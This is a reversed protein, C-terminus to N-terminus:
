ARLKEHCDDAPGSVTRFRYGEDLLMPIVKRLADVTNGIDPDTALERGDHLCYIAGNQRGCWLRSAIGDASLKWDRGITTWTVGLLGLENQVDRLGFWRVGYPARFLTPEVGIADAISAQAWRVEEGIFTRSRLWLGTHTDTHNGIEHGAAATERLISGLRRVNAGCVFFTAPIGFKALLELVRPTSPSPGDDFTLAVAKVNRSLRHISPAFVASSRGRAAWALFGLTAATGAAAAAALGPVRGKRAAQFPRSVNFVGGADPGQHSM